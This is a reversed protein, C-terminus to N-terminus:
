LSSLKLLLYLQNWDDYKFYSVKKYTSISCRAYELDAAIIPANLYQAEILPLGVTEVYSPFLLYSSKYYEKMKPFDLTGILQIPLKYEEIEKKIHRSLKNENGFITFVVEIKAKEESSLAKVADIIVKHNKFAFATAPYFFRIKDTKIWM